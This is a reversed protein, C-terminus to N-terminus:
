GLIIISSGNWGKFQGDTTNFWVLGADGAHLTLAGEQAATMQTVRVGGANYVTMLPYSWGGLGLSTANFNWSLAPTYGPSTNSNQGSASWVLQPNTGAGQAGGSRSVELGVSGSLSISGSDAESLLIISDNVSLTGGGSAGSLSGSVYVNGFTFNAGDSTTPNVRNYFPVLPYIVNNIHEARVPSGLGKYGITVINTYNAAAFIITGNSYNVYFTKDVTPPNTTTETFSQSDIVRVVTVTEPSTQLPMERLNVVGPIIDPRTAQLSADPIYYTSYYPSSAGPLTIPSTISRKDFVTILDTPYITNPDLNM